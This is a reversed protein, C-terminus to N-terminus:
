APAVTSLCGAPSESDDTPTHFLTTIPQKGATWRSEGEEKDRTGRGKDRTGEEWNEVMLFFNGEQLM